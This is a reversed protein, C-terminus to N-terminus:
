IPSKDSHFFICLLFNLARGPFPLEKGTELSAEPGFQRCCRGGGSAAKGGAAIPTWRCRHGPVGPPGARGRLAPPGKETPHFSGGAAGAPERAQEGVGTGGTHKARVVDRCSPRPASWAAWGTRLRSM